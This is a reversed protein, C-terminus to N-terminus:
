ILCTLTEVTFSVSITYQTDYMAFLANLQVSIFIYAYGMSNFASKGFECSRFRM